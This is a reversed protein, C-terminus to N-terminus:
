DMQHLVRNHSCRVQKGGTGNALPRALGYGVKILTLNTTHATDTSLPKVSTTCFNQCAECTKVIQEVDKIHTPWYFGQRLANITSM